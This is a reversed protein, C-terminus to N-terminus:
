DRIVSAENGVWSSGNVIGELGGSRKRTTQHTATRDKAVVTTSYGTWNFRQKVKGPGVAHRPYSPSIFQQSSFLSISSPQEIDEGAAKTGRVCAASIWGLGIVRADISGPAIPLAHVRATHTLAHVDTLGSIDLRWEQFLLAKRTQLCRRLRNVESREAGRRLNRKQQLFLTPGRLPSTNNSLLPLLGM